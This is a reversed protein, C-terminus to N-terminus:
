SRLLTEIAEPKQSPNVLTSLLGEDFYAGMLKATTNTPGYIISRFPIFVPRVAGGNDKLSHRYYKPLNGQQRTISAAILEIAINNSGLSVGAHHGSTSFIKCLDIDNFYWPVNGKAIIEDYINYTLTDTKVLNVNPSIVSGAEFSFEYNDDGAIKVVNTSMPTIQMMANACSVGYNGHSDVIAFMAMIRIENAIVALKREAFRAPIYIRCAQKAILQGSQTEVLLGHIAAPNRKLQTFDM